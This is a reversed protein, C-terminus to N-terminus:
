IFAWSFVMKLLSYERTGQRPSQVQDRSPAEPLGGSGKGWPWHMGSGEQSKGEYFQNHTQKSDAINIM